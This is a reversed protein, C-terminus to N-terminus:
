PPAVGRALAHEPVREVGLASLLAGAESSLSAADPVGLAALGDLALAAEYDEGGARAESLATRLALEAAVVDGDAGHAFGQVRWLLASPATVDLRLLKEAAELAEASRGALVLAEAKYADALAADGGFGLERLEARADDLLELAEDSRGGRAAARGLLATAFAAGHADETGRWVRRARLLRTEAEAIRGQDALVEAINCDGFAANAVDGARMSADAGREYLKIAEDWKGDWYAFMGLNNLVAAQRDLDGAREYIALAVASHVAEAGQGLNVLAWDLLFCARALTLQDGASEAAVVGERCLRAAERHRGQRQRVAGLTTVLQARVAGAGRGTEGELMRLGVRASRVAAATRGVREHVHAQRQVLSAESVVDGRVLRRARAFADAAGSLNGARARAEGLQEWATACDAPAVDDLRRAADLAREWLDAAAAYAFRDAARAAATRAHQWARGHDGALHCHLSLMGGVEDLMAGYEQEIRRAVAAHLRRRTRYALGSYAADRVIVRRFRLFGDGDAIFIEGLREWTSDTPPDSEDDLVDTLFRPHFSAGLVSARRVLTRLDPELQDIRIMAASEISEPLADASGDQAAALLDLLFQPNGGSRDAVLALLHPALPAADTAAEALALTAAPELAALQLREVNARQSESAAVDRRTVLVLWPLEALERSIAALLDTSAEDLFHADDIRLIATGPLLAQLFAIVTAHLKARRFQPALAEVEPTVPPDIDLAIGLLPLWPKLQPASASVAARLCELVAEDGDEWGAGIAARLLERWVVYPTSVTFAEATATLVHDAAAREVAEDALRSKGIGAEGVIEVLRGSGATAGAATRTLSALEDDRGTLRLLVQDAQNLRAAVAPGISWVQVPKTKGKVRFPEVEEAAFRTPSRDLVAATAYLAGAPAKAAVRAALNVADGMVSYARRYFPGIDGAFVNGRHVGISIPIRRNADLVSRLTLLMRGEDDGMVRPAGATLMLSGGGDSVDSELLCVEHREAAAQVDSVLAHLESVAADIGDREILEDLSEFRIFAVTVNRHESPQPGSLARERVMPPLCEAVQDLSPFTIRPEGFAVPPPEGRIRLGPGRDLGRCREPIAAASARSILIEGASAAKELRVVESADPGIVLQERHTEGVLALHVRGSHVGQSIRLTVHSSGTEIRGIERLARRMGVAARCARAAHGEHEFLLILADGALKLLSGGNDYAVTLITSLSGGITEALTEAGERGQRALRESLATFGSIDAFVISADVTRLRAGPEEALQRLLVRPVYPDLRREPSSAHKSAGGSTM